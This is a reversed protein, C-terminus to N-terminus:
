NGSTYKKIHHLEVIEVEGTNCNNIHMFHELKYECKVERKKRENRECHM